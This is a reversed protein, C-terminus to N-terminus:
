NEKTKKIKDIIEYESYIKIYNDMTIQNQSKLINYIERYVPVSLLENRLFDYLDYINEPVYSCWLSKNDTLLAGRVKTASINITNRSITVEKVGKLDELSFWAKRSEDDGTIMYDAFQGIYEFVHKKVYMGWNYSIDYENTMDDLGRIILVDKSLNPYTKELVKIRTELKFPNRLTSDEQASGVLILVKNCNELATDILFKHGLHEHNLRGCILGLEYKKTINKM